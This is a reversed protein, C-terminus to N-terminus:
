LVVWLSLVSSGLLVLRPLVNLIGITLSRRSGEEMRIMVHLRAPIEGALRISYTRVPTHPNEMGGGEQVDAVAANGILGLRPQFWAWARGPWPVCSVQLTAGSQSASMQRLSQRVRPRIAADLYYIGMLMREIDFDLCKRPKFLCAKWWPRCVMDAEFLSPDAFDDPSPGQGDGTPTALPAMPDHIRPKVDARGLGIRFPWPYQAHCQGGPFQARHMEAPDTDDIFEVDAAFEWLLPDNGRLVLSLILWLLGSGALLAALLPWNIPAHITVLSGRSTVQPGELVTVGESLGICLVDVTMSKGRPPLAVVPGGTESSGTENWAAAPISNDAGVRHFGRGEMLKDIAAEASRTDRASAICDKLEGPTPQPPLQTGQARWFTIAKGGPVSSEVAIASPGRGLTFSSPVGPVPIGLEVGRCRVTLAGAQFTTTTPPGSVSEPLRCTARVEIDGRDDPSTEILLENSGSPSTCPLPKGSQKLVADFMCRSSDVGRWLGFELPVKIPQGPTGVVSSAATGFPSAMSYYGMVHRPSIPSTPDVMGGRAISAEITHPGEKSLVFEGDAGRAASPDEPCSFAVSENAKLPPTISARIRQGLPVRGDEGVGALQVSRPTPPISLRCDWKVTGIINGSKDRAVIEAQIESPAQLPLDLQFTATVSPPYGQASLGAVTATQIPSGGSKPMVVWQCDRIEMAKQGRFEAKFKRQYTGTELDPGLEALISPNLPEPEVRLAEFRPALLKAEIEHSPTPRGRLVEDQRVEFDLIARITGSVSQANSPLDAMQVILPLELVGSPDPQPAATNPSKLEVPDGDVPAWTWRIRPQAAPGTLGRAIIRMECPLGADALAPSDPRTITISPFDSAVCSRDATRIPMRLTRHLAELRVQWSGKESLRFVARFRGDATTESRVPRLESGSVPHIALWEPQEFDSSPSSLFAVEEGKWCSDPAKAIELSAQICDFGIETASTVPQGGRMGVVEARIRWPGAEDLLVKVERGSQETRAKGSPPTARWIVKNADRPVSSLRFVPEAGRRQYKGSPEIRGIQFDDKAFSLRIVSPSCDIQGEPSMRVKVDTTAGDLLRGGSGEGELLVAKFTLKGGDPGLDMEPPVIRIRPDAAQLQIRSRLLGVNFPASFPARRVCIDFPVGQTTLVPLSSLREPTIVAAPREVPSLRSKDDVGITRLAIHNSGGVSGAWSPGEDERVAEAPAFAPLRNLFRRRPNDARKADTTSDPLNPDVDTLVTLRTPIRNGESLRIAEELGRLRAFFYATGGEVADLSNVFARAREAEGPKSLDFGRPGRWAGRAEIGVDDRGGTENCNKVTGFPMIYLMCDSSQHLDIIRLCESRAWDWRTKDRASRLAAPLENKMSTTCDLVLVENFREGRSASCPDQPADTQAQIDPVFTLLLAALIAQLCAKIDRCTGSRIM